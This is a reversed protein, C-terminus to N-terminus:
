AEPAQEVPEQEPEIFKGDTYEWGVSVPQNNKLKVDYLEKPTKSDIVLVNKVIGNEIKAARQEM